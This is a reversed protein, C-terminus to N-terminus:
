VKVCRLEGAKDMRLVSDAFAALPVKGGRNLLHAYLAPLDLYSMWSILLYEKPTM